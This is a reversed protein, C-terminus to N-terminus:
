SCIFVRSMFMTSRWKRGSNRLRSSSVMTKRGSLDHVDLEAADGLADALPAVGDLEGGLGLAEEDLLAVAGLEAGPGEAAGDLLVDLVGEGLLQEALLEGLVGADGDADAVVVEVEVDLGGLRGGLALLGALGGLGGGGSGALM